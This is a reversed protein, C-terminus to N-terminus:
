EYPIRLPISAKLKIIGGSLVYFLPIISFKNVINLITPTLYMLIEYKLFFM